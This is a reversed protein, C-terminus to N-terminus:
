KTDFDHMVDRTQTVSPSYGILYLPGSYVDSEFAYYYTEIM